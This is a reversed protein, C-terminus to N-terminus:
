VVGDMFTNGKWRLLVRVGVYGVVGFFTASATAGLVLPFAHQAILTVGASQFAPSIGGFKCIRDGVLYQLVLIAPVTLPNSIFTGLVAAPLHCRIQSGLFLVLAIRFGFIPLLGIFWGMGVGLALSHRSPIWFAPAMLSEGLWPYLWSKRISEPTPLQRFIHELMWSNVKGLGLLLFAM